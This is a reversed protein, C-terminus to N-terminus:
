TKRALYERVAAKAADITRYQAPSEGPLFARKRPHLARGEAYAAWQAFTRIAGTKPDVSHVSMKRIEYIEGLPSLRRWVDPTHMFWRDAFVAIKRGESNKARYLAVPEPEARTPDKLVQRLKLRLPM